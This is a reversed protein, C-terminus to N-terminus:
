HLNSFHWSMEEDAVEAVRDIYILTPYGLTEHYTVRLEYIDQTKLDEISQFADTVSPLNTLEETAIQEGTTTIIASTVENNSVYLTKLLNMEPACFCGLQFDIQYDSIGQAQWLAKNKALEIEFASDQDTGGCASLNLLCIVSIALGLTNVKNM